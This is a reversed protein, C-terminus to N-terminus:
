RTTHAPLVEHPNRRDSWFLFLRDLIPEIDVYLDGGHPYLRLIGGNVQWINYFFHLYQSYLIYINHICFTIITFVFYHVHVKRFYAFLSSWTVFREIM